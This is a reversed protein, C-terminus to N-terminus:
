PAPAPTLLHTFSNRDVRGLARRGRPLPRTRRAGSLAQRRSDPRDVAARARHLPIPRRIRPHLGHTDHDGRTRCKHPRERSARPPVRQDRANAVGRNEREGTSPRVPTADRDALGARGSSRRLWTGPCALHSLCSAPQTLALRRRGAWPGLHAQLAHLVVVVHQSCETAAVRVQNLLDEPAVGHCPDIQEQLIEVLRGRTSSLTWEDAVRASGRSCALARPPPSFQSRRRTSVLPM